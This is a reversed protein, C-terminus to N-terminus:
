KRQFEKLTQYIFENLDLAVARGLDMKMKEIRLLTNQIVYSPKIGHKKIGKAIAWAAQNNLDKISKGHKSMAKSHKTIARAISPKTTVWQKIKDVPPMKGPKRGQDVYKLYDNARINLFYGDVAQQIDFSLSKILQGTAKKDKSLLEKILQRIFEEGYKQFAKKLNGTKFDKNFM